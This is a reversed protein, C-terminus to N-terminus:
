EADKPITEKPNMTFHKWRHRPGAFPKRGELKGVLFRYAHRKGGMYAELGDEGGPPRTQERPLRQLNQPLYLPM